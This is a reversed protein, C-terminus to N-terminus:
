FGHLLLIIARRKTSFLNAAEDLNAHYRKLLPLSRSITKIRHNLSASQESNKKYEEETFSFASNDKQACQKLLAITRSIANLKAEQKENAQIASEYENLAFILMPTNQIKLSVPDLELFANKQLESNQMEPSGCCIALELNLKKHSIRKREGDERTLSYMGLYGAGLFTNLGLSAWPGLAICSLAIETAWIGALAKLSEPNNHYEM